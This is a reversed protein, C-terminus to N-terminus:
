TSKLGKWLHKTLVNKVIQVILFRLQSVTVWLALIQQPCLADFSILLFTVHKELPAMVLSQWVEREESVRQADLNVASLCCGSNRFFLEM